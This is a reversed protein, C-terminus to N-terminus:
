LPHRASREMNSYRCHIRSQLQFWRNGGSDGAIRRHLNPATSCHIASVFAIDSGIGDEKALQSEADQQQRFSLLADSDLM